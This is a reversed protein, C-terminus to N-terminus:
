IFDYILKMVNTDFIKSNLIEKRYEGMILEKIGFGVYTPEDYPKSRRLVLRFINDRTDHVNNLIMDKLKALAEDKTDAVIYSEDVGRDNYSPYVFTNYEYARSKPPKTLKDRTLNYAYENLKKKNYAYINWGKTTRTVWDYTYATIFIRTNPM